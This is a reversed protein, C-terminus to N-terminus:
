PKLLLKMIFIILFIYFALIFTVINNNIKEKINYFWIKTKHNKFGIKNYKNSPYYSHFLYIKNKDLNFSVRKM